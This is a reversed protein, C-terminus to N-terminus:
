DLTSKEYVIDILDGEGIAYGALETNWFLTDGAQLEELPLSTEGGDRSFFVDGSFDGYSETAAVGNIYVQVSSNAFPTFELVIGTNAKLEESYLPELDAQTHETGQALPTAGLSPRWPLVQAKEDTIAQLVPNSHTFQPDYVTVFEELTGQGSEDVLYFKGPTLGWGSVEINGIQVAVFNDADTVSEVVLRGLRDSASADALVWAGNVFAIAKGPTLGHGVQFYSSKLTGSEIHADIQDLKDQLGYIQKIKIQSM